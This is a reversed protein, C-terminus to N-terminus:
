FPESYFHDFILIFMIVSGVVILAIGLNTTIWIGMFLFISSIVTLAARDESHSTM